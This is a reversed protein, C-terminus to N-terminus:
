NYIKKLKMFLMSCEETLKTIPDGLFCMHDAYPGYPQQQSAYKSASFFIGKQYINVECKLAENELEQKKKLYIAESHNYLVKANKIKFKGNAQEGHNADSYVWPSNGGEMRILPNDYKLSDMNGEINMLSLGLYAARKIGFQHLAQEQMNTIYFPYAEEIFICAQEEIPDWLLHIICRAVTIGKENQIALMRYDGNMVYGMLCKNLNPDGDVRQCSGEIDTGSMFMSWYDDTDVINWGICNIEKNHKNMLKRIATYLDNSFEFNACSPINRNIEMLCAVQNEPDKPNNKVANILALQLKYSILNSNVSNEESICCTILKELNEEIEQKEKEHQEPTVNLKVYEQFYKRYNLPLHQHHICRAILFKMLDFEKNNNILENNNIFKAYNESYGEQWKAKLDPARSFIIKLQCNFDEAYRLVYYGKSCNMLVSNVYKNLVDLMQVKEDEPLLQMKAYYILLAAQNHKVGFSQDYNNIDETNIKFIDICIKKFAMQVDDQMITYFEQFKPNNMIVPILMAQILWWYNKQGIFEDDLVKNVLLFKDQEKLKDQSFIAHLGSILPRMHKGDKYKKHNKNIKNSIKKILEVYDLIKESFIHAMIILTPLLATQNRNEVFECYVDYIISQNCIKELVIKSLIFRMKPDSFSRIEKLIKQIINIHKKFNEIVSNANFLMITYILWNSILLFKYASFEDVVEYKILFDLEKQWIEQNVDDWIKHNNLIKSKIFDCRILSFDLDIGISLVNELEAFLRGIVGPMSSLDFNLFDDFVDLVDPQNDAIKILIELRILPDSIGFVKINNVVQQPNNEALVRLIAVRDCEELFGCDEEKIKRDTNKLIKLIVDKKIGYYDVTTFKKLYNLISTFSELHKFAINITNVFPLKFVSLDIIYTTNNKVLNKLAIKLLEERHHFDFAELEYKEDLFYLSFYEIRKKVLKFRSEYDIQLYMQNAYDDLYFTIKADDEFVCLVQIIEDIDLSFNNWCIRANYCYIATILIEAQQVLSLHKYPM